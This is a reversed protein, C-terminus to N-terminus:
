YKKMAINPLMLEARLARTRAGGSPTGDLMQFPRLRTSAVTPLDPEYEATRAALEIIVGRVEEPDASVMAETAPAFDVNTPPPTGGATRRMLFRVNFRTVFDLIARDDVVRPAGGEVVQLRVLKSTPDVETRRLVAVRNAGIRSTEEGTANMAHYRITNVPSIWGTDAPCAAPVATELTIVAPAGAVNPCSASEIRTYHSLDNLARVRVIRGPTFAALLANENCIGAARGGAAYWSSFDRIFSQSTSPLTVTKRDVSLAIGGYEGSTAYNGMLTVDSVTAWANLNDPDLETPKAAVEFYASIAALRGSGVIHAPDNLSGVVSDACLEGPQDVRPTGLYGARAFDRKIQNMAARLSSQTASVRQQQRFNQTSAAGIAYVSSIAIGGVTLAVMLEIVTFGRRGRQTRTRTTM